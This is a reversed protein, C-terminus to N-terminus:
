QELENIKNELEELSKLDVIRDIDDTVDVQSAGLANACGTHNVNKM